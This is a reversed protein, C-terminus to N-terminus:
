EDPSYMESKKFSREFADVVEETFQRGRYQLIERYARMPPLGKRYPRDSTIADFTDAVAIIQAILSIDKGQLGYPYGRGDPREHHYRIGDVVREFGEIHELLEYGLRPHQKMKEFEEKTLQAQKKLISDEIGIKGVDHLVGTLRIDELDKQSLGLERGIVEAFHAVRQTHAGTYLDKLNIANAFSKSIQLLQRKALEVSSIYRLIIGMQNAVSSIFQIDEQNFFGRLSNIAQIVGLLKGEVVLPALLMDRCKLPNGDSDKKELGLEQAQKEFRADLSVDPIHLVAMYFACAGPISNEDIAYSVKCNKGVRSKTADLNKYEYFLEKRKKDVRFIHVIECELLERLKGIGRRYIEKDARKAMAASTILEGFKILGDYRKVKGSLEIIISEHDEGESKLNVSEKKSGTSEMSNTFEMSTTSTTSTTSRTPTTDQSRYKRRKM